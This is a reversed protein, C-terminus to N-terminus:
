IWETNRKRFSQMYKWKKGSFFNFFCTHCNKSVFKQRAMNIQSNKKGRWVDCQQWIVFELENWRWVISRSRVGKKLSGSRSWINCIEYLCKTLNVYSRFDVFFIGAVCIRSSYRSFSRSRLRDQQIAAEETTDKSCIVFGDYIDYM